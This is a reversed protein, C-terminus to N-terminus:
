ARFLNYHVSLQLEVNSGPGSGGEVVNDLSFLFHFGYRCHVATM